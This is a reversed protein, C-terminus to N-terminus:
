EVWLWGPAQPAEFGDAFVYSNLLRAVGVSQISNAIDVTGALVVRGNQLDVRYAYDNYPSGQDFDILQVGSADPNFEDDFSGNPTLRAVAMASDGGTETAAGAVVIKGDGQVVVDELYSYPVSEIAFDLQGDSSFSPDLELEDQANWRLVAIAASSYVQPGSNEATGVVVVKGDETAAIANPTDDFDGGPLDFAVTTVGALAGAADFDVVFFDDYGAISVVHGNPTTVSDTGYAEVPFADPPACYTPGTGGNAELVIVHVRCGAPGEGLSSGTVLTTGDALPRLRSSGSLGALNWSYLTAIGDGSFSTNLTCDPFSYALVFWADMGGMVPDVYSERALVLLRGYADFAIDFVRTDRVGSPYPEVVCVNGLSADNVSRWVAAEVGGTPPVYSYAVALHGEVDSALGGFSADASVDIAVTGDMWFAPDLEGDDALLPLAVSV